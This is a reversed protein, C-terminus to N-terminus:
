LKEVDQWIHLLHVATLGARHNPPAFPPPPPPPPPPPRQTSLLISLGNGADLHM